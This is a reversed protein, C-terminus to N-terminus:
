RHKNKGYFITIHDFYKRLKLDDTVLYLETNNCLLERIAPTIFTFDDFTFGEPTIFRGYRCYFELKARYNSINKQTFLHLDVM